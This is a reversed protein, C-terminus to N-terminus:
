ASKGGLVRLLSIVLRDLRVIGEHLAGALQEGADASLDPRQGEVAIGHLDEIAATADAFLRQVSKM